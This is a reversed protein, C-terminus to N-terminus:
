EIVIAETPCSDAAMRITKEDDTTNEKVVAIDDVMEFTAAALAACTGCGICKDKIVEIKM